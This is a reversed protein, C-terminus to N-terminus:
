RTATRHIRSIKDLIGNIFAPTDKTGYLKGIEIAENIVVSVPVEPRFLLEFTALRLLALDVRAMRELTWNTSCSEVVRDIEGLHEAVGTVLEETFHRVEPHLPADAEDEPEGLVDDQFRFSGWFDRLVREVQGTQDNLSYLVKLALERGQRRIGKSM